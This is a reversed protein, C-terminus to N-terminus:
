TWLPSPMTLLSLLVLFLLLLLLLALFSLLLFKWVFALSLSLYLLLCWNLLPLVPSNNPMYIKLHEIYIEVLCLNKIIGLIKIFCCIKLLSYVPILYCIFWFYGNVLIRIWSTTFYDPYRDTKLFKLDM